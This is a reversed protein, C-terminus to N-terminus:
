IRRLGFTYSGIARQNSGYSDEPGMKVIDRSFLPVDARSIVRSISSPIHFHTCLRRFTEKDIPLHRLEREGRIKHGLSKSPGRGSSAQIKEGPPWSYSRDKENLILSEPHKKGSKTPTFQTAGSLIRQM